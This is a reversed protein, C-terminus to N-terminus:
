RLAVSPQASTPDLGQPWVNQVFLPNYQKEKVHQPGSPGIFPLSLRPRTSARLGVMKFLVYTNTTETTRTPAAEASPDFDPRPGPALFMSFWHKNSINSPQQHSKPPDASTPDLSQPWLGAFVINLQRKNQTCRPADPPWRPGDEPTKPIQQPTGPGGQPYRPAEIPKPAM